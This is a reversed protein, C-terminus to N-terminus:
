PLLPQLTIAEPNQSSMTTLAQSQRRLNSSTSM